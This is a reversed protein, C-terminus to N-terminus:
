CTSSIVFTIRNFFIKEDEHALILLTNQQGILLLNQKYLHFEYFKSCLINFNLINFPLNQTCGLAIM